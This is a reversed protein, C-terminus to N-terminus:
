NRIDIYIYFLGLGFALKADEPRYFNFYKGVM